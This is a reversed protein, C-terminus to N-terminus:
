WLSQQTTGDLRVSSLGRPNLVHNNIITLASTFNSVVVVKDSPNESRIHALLKELIDLKGPKSSTTPSLRSNDKILDPHSCLKRLNTLTTLNDSDSGSTLASYMKCQDSSPRCFLLTEFRAPLFDRLIDKQLRRIMFLSTIKELEKSVTKAREKQNNSADKKGGAAIPREYAKTM